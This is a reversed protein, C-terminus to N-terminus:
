AVRRQAERRIGAFRVDVATLERGALEQMRETLSVRVAEARQPITTHDDPRLALPVSVSARLAGQADALEVSVDGAPVHGADGVIGVALRRLARASITTRGAVVLPEVASAVGGIM